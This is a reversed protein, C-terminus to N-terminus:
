LRAAAYYTRFGKELAADRFSLTLPNMALNGPISINNLAQILKPPM